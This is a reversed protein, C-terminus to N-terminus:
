ISRKKLLFISFCRILILFVWKSYSKGLAAAEKPHAHYFGEQSWRRPPIESICDEGNKLNEWFADLNEAQPYRGSVGIIAVPDQAQERDVADIKKRAFAHKSKLSIVKSVSDDEHKSVQQQADAVQMQHRGYGTWDLCAHQYESALYTALQTLNRYEFFLTKSIEGFIVGLKRNLRTIM